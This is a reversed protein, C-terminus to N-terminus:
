ECENPVDWMKQVLRCAAIWGEGGSEIRDIAELMTYGMEKLWDPRNLVLCVALREGTSWPGVEDWDKSQRAMSDIRRCLDPSPVAASVIPQQQLDRLETLASVTDACLSGYGVARQNSRSEWEEILEELRSLKM